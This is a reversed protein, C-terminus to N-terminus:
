RARLGRLCSRGCAGFLVHTIGKGGGGKRRGVTGGFGFTCCYVLLGVGWGLAEFIEFM